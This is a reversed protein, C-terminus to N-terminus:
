PRAARRLPAPPEIVLRDSRRQLDTDPSSRGSPPRRPSSGPTSRTWSSTAARPSLDLQNRLASAHAMARPHRRRSWARSPTAKVTRPRCFRRGPAPEGEPADGGNLAVEIVCPSRM